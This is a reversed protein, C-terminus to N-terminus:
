TGCRRDWGCDWGIRINGLAGLIRALGAEDQPEMSEARELIHGHIERVIEAIEEAPLEGLARRLRALYADIQRQLAPDIPSTM